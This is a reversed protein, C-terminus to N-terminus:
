AVMSRYFKEENITDYSGGTTKPLLYRGQFRFGKEFIGQAKSPKEGKIAISNMISVEAMTIIFIIRSRNLLMCHKSAIVKDKFRLHFEIPCKVILQLRKPCFYESFM